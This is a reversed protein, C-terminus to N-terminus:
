LALSLFIRALFECARLEGFDASVPSVGTGCFVTVGVGSTVRAGTIGGRFGMTRYDAAGIIPVFPPNHPNM